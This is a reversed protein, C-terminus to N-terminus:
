EEISISQCLLLAERYAKRNFNEVDCRLKGLTSKVSETNKHTRIVDVYCGHLKVSLGKVYSLVQETLVLIIMTNKNYFQEASTYMILLSQM